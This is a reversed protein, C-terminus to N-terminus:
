LKEFSNIQLAYETRKKTEDQVIFTILIEANPYYSKISTPKRMKRFQLKFM